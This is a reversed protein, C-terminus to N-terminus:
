ARTLITVVVVEGRGNWGGILRVRSHIAIDEAGQQQVDEAAMAAKIFAGPEPEIELYLFRTQKVTTEWRMEVLEGEIDLTDKPSGTIHRREAPRFPLDDDDFAPPGDDPSAVFPQVPQNSLLAVWASGDQIEVLTVDKIVKKKPKDGRNPYDEETRVGHVRLVHGEELGFRVIAEAAEDWLEVNHKSNGVKIAFNAVKGKATQRTGDPPVTVPGEFVLAKGAQPQQAAPAPRQAAPQQRPAAQAPAAAQARNEAPPADAAAQFQPMDEIDQTFLDTIGLTHRVAGVFGRKASIQVLTNILAHPEDNEIKGPTQDTIARDNDTFTAGCGDRKKWCLWGGQEYGPLVDGERGHTRPAYKPNGKMIAAAGCKPCAREKNRWRYREEYSSCSAVASGKVPGELSEFHLFTQTHVDIRDPHGPVPTILIRQEHRPILRAIMALREAGPQLLSPTKTGPIIGYDVDPRMLNKYIAGIRDTGARIVAMEEEFRDQPMLGLYRLPDSGTDVVVAAQQPPAVTLAHETVDRATGEIINDTM